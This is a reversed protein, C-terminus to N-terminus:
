DALPAHEHEYVRYRNVDVLTPRLLQASIGM